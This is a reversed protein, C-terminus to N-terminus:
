AYTATVQGAASTFPTPPITNAAYPYAIIASGGQITCNNLPLSANAGVVECAFDAFTQSSITNGTKTLICSYGFPIGFPLCVNTAYTMASVIPGSCSSPSSYTVIQISSDNASVNVIILIMFFLGIFVQM